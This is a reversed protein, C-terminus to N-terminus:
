TPSRPGDRRTSCRTAPPGGDDLAVSNMSTRACRRVAHRRDVADTGSWSRRSEYPSAVLASRSRDTAVCRIMAIISSAAILERVLSAHVARAASWPDAVEGDSRADSCPCWASSHQEWAFRGSSFSSAPRRQHHRRARLRRDGGGVVVRVDDRDDDGAGPPAETGAGVHFRHERAAPRGDGVDLGGGSVPDLVTAARLRQDGRTLPAAMPTPMVITSGSRDSRRRM